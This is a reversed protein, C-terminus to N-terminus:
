NFLEQTESELLLLKEHVRSNWSQLRDKLVQIQNQSLVRPIVWTVKLVQDVQDITGKILNLSMCKMILLEVSDVQTQLFQAISEFSLVRSETPQRFIFEVLASATIKQKLLEHHKKLLIENEMEDNHISIIEEYKKMDGNNYAHLLEYMWNYNSNKLSELIPHAILEGFNFITESILAALGLNFALDQQNFVPVNELKEFTLYLMAQHYFKDYDEKFKFYSYSVQYYSALVNSEILSIGGSGEILTKTDQLIENVKILDNQKLLIRSIELKLLIASSISKEVKRLLNQLLKIKEELDPITRSVEIVFSVVKLPNLKTEIKMLFGTYFTQLIDGIRFVPNTMLEDLKETLQHWLKKEYLQQIIAFDGQLQPIQESLIQLTEM